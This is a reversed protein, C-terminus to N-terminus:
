ARNRLNPDVIAADSFKLFKLSDCNVLKDLTKGTVNSRQSCEFTLSQLNKLALVEGIGVDTVQSSLITLSNIDQIRALKKMVDDTVEFHDFRREIMFVSTFTAGDDRKRQSVKAGLAKLSKLIDTNPEDAVMTSETCEMAFVAFVILLFGNRMKVARLVISAVGPACERVDVM